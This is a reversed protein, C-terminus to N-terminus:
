FKYNLTNTSEVRKSPMDNVIGGETGGKRWISESCVAKLKVAVHRPLDSPRELLATVKISEGPHITMLSAPDSDAGSTVALIQEKPNKYEPSSFRIGFTFARVDASSNIFLKRQDMSVPLRFESGSSNTIELVTLYPGFRTASKGRRVEILRVDIPLNSPHGAPSDLVRSVVTPGENFLTANQSWSTLDLTKPKEAGYLVVIGLFIILFVGCAVRLRDIAPPNSPKTVPSIHCTISTEL